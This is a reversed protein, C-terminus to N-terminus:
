APQAPAKPPKDELTVVFTRQLVDCVVGTVVQDTSYQMHGNLIAIMTETNLHYINKGVGGKM